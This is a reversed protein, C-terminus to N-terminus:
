FIFCLLRSGQQLSGLQLGWGIGDGLKGAGLERMHSLPLMRFLPQLVLPSCPNLNGLGVLTNQSCELHKGKRIMWGESCNWSTLLLHRLKSILFCRYFTLFYIWNCLCSTAHWRHVECWNAAWHPCSRDVSKQWTGPGRPVPAALSGDGAGRSFPCPGAVLSFFSFWLCLHRLMILVPPRRRDECPFRWFLQAWFFM